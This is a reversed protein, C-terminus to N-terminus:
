SSIEFVFAKRYYAVKRPATSSTSVMEISDKSDIEKLNVRQGTKDRFETKAKGIADNVIQNASDEAIKVQDRLNTETAFYVACHYNITMTEGAFSAKLGYGKDLARGFTTNLIEGLKNVQQFDLM